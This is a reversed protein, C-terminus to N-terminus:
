SAAIKMKKFSSADAYIFRRIHFDPVQILMNTNMQRNADRRKAKNPGKFNRNVFRRIKLACAVALACNLTQIAVVSGLVIRNLQIIIQDVSSVIFIFSNLVPTRAAFGALVMLAMDFATAIEPQRLVLPQDVTTLSLTFFAISFSAIPTMLLIWFFLKPMSWNHCILGYRYVFQPGYQNSSIACLM